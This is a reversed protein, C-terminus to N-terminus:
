TPFDGEQTKLGVEIAVGRALERQADAKSTKRVRVNTGVEKKLWKPSRGGERWDEEKVQEDMSSRPCSTANNKLFGKGKSRSKM